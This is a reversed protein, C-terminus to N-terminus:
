ASAVTGPPASRSRHEALHFAIDMLTKLVVLIALAAAPAGTFAIAMGGVIITIHLVVLRGYPVFMQGAPSTRRYEGRGLYNFWYSLGHSIALAIVALLIAGPEFGSTMDMRATPFPAFVGDVSEGDLPGFPEVTDFGDGIGAFLPLTLVFIGHVFWFIGYHIVFFGAIGARGVAAMPKGNMRWDSTPDAPGEARLIKLVNFFGVVGNELWYVILIMWVNWGFFIAGVLPIANAVILAVVAGTSSAVRYWGM